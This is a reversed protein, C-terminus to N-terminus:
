GAASGGPSGPAQQVREILDRAAPTLDTESCRLRRKDDGDRVLVTWIFRDPRGAPAATQQRGATGDRDVGVATTEVPVGKRVLPRWADADAGEVRATWTRMIGGFGGSRTVTIQLQADAERDPM